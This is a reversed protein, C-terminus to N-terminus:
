FEITATYKADSFSFWENVEIELPTSGDRLNYMKTVEKTVGPKIEVDFFQSDDDTGVSPELAIGDQYVKDELAGDFSQPTDSNNTFEYVIRVSDEGLLDRCKEASKVEVFYDGLTGDAGDKNEEVKQAETTGNADTVAPTDSDGGSGAIIGIVIIVAIVAIIILRKKKKKKKQEALAANVAQQVEPNNMQFDDAM